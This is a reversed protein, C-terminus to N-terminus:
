KVLFSINVEFCIKKIEDYNPYGIFKRIECDASKYIVYASQPIRHLLILLFKISWLKYYEIAVINSIPIEEYGKKNINPYKIIVHDDKLLLYNKKSKAEKYLMFIVGLHLFLTVFFCILMEVSKLVITPIGFFLLFIASLFIVVPKFAGSNLYIM